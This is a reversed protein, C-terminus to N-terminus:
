LDPPLRMPASGPGCRACALRLSLVTTGQYQCITPRDADGIMEPIEAMFERSELRITELRAAMMIEASGTFAASGVTAPRNSFCSSCLPLDTPHNRKTSRLPRQSPAKAFSHARGPSGGLGVQVPHVSSRLFAGSSPREKMLSM